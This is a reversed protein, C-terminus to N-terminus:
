VTCGSSGAYCGTIAAVIILVIQATVLTVAGYRLAKRYSIAVLADIELIFTSITTLSGCFGIAVGRAAVRGASDLHSVADVYALIGLLLSGVINVSFTGIPFRESNFRKGVYSRIAAGIPALTCAIALSTTQVSDAAVFSAVSSTIVIIFIFTALAAGSTNVFPQICLYGLHRSQRICPPLVYQTLRLLPDFYSSSPICNLM